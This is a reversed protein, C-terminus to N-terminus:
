NITLAFIVLLYNNNQPDNQGLEIKLKQNEREFIILNKQQNKLNWGLRPLNELYFDQILNPLSQSQYTASTFSGDITDFDIDENSVLELDPALPVDHTGKVFKNLIVKPPNPNIVQPPTPPNTKNDIPAQPQQSLCSTISILLISSLIKQFNKM